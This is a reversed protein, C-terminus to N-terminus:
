ASPNSDPAPLLRKARWVTVSTAVRQCQPGTREREIATLEDGTLWLTMRDTEPHTSRDACISVNQFSATWHGNAWGLGAVLPGGDTNRDITVQCVSHSCGSTFRWIRTFTMGVQQAGFFNHSAVITGRILWTGDLSAAQRQEPSEAPHHPGTPGLGPTTILRRAVSISVARTPADVHVPLGYRTFYVSSAQVSGASAGTDGSALNSPDGPRIQAASRPLWPAHDSLLVIETARSPRRAIQDLMM